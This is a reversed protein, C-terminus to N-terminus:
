MIDYKVKEKKPLSPRTTKVAELLDSQTVQVMVEDAMEQFCWVYGVTVRKM